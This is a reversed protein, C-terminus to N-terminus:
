EFAGWESSHPNTPNVRMKERKGRVRWIRLFHMFFLEALIM